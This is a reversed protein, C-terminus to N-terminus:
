ERAGIKIREFRWANFWVTVVEPNSSLNGEIMRMLSTKGTGWAGFIGITFPETTGLAASSLVEAYTSFGLGDEQPSDHEGLAQDTLLRVEGM